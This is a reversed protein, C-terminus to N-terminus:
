AQALQKEIEKLREYPLTIHTKDPLYAWGRQIDVSTYKTNDSPNESFEAEWRRQNLYTSLNAFDPFFTNSAKSAQSRAILKELAQQLIPIVERWDKHKKKFDDLETKLGRKTGPYAIRFNEFQAEIETEGVGREVKGSGNGKGIGKGIPSFLGEIAGLKQLIEAQNFLPLNSQIIQIIQKHANNEPNLPLNKQHRLFNSLFIKSCSSPSTPFILGRNLGQIAGLFDVKSIGLMIPHIVESPEFFGANDCKDVMFLFVLKYTPPLSAFWADEWKGTESFRKM